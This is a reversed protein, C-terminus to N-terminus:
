EESCDETACEELIIDGFQPFAQNKAVITINAPNSIAVDPAISAIATAASGFVIALFLTYRVM